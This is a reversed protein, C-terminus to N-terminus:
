TKGYNQKYNDLRENLLDCLAQPKMTLGSAAISEQAGVMGINLRRVARGMRSADQLKRQEERNVFHVSIFEQVGMQTMKFRMVEDFRYESRKWLATCVVKDAMVVIAPRGLLREWLAVLPFFLAMIGFFLLGCWFMWDGRLAPDDIILWMYLGVFGLSLLVAWWIKGGWPTHYIRVENM